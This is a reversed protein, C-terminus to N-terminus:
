QVDAATEMEHIIHGADEKTMCGAFYHMAAVRRAAAEFKSM